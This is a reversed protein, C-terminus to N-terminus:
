YHLNTITSHVNRKPKFFDDSGSDTRGEDNNNNDDDNNDDDDDDDDDDNSQDGQTTPTDVKTLGKRIGKNEAMKENSTEVHDSAFAHPTWLPLPRACAARGTPLSGRFHNYPQKM